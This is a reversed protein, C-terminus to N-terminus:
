DEDPAPEPPNTGQWDGSALPLPDATALLLRDVVAESAVSPAPLSLLPPKAAESNKRKRNRKPTEAWIRLSEWAGDVWDDKPGKQLRHQIQANSVAIKIESDTLPERSPHVAWGDGLIKARVADVTPPQVGEPNPQVAVAATPATITVPVTQPRLQLNVAGNSRFKVVGTIEM